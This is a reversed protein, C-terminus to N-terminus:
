KEGKDYYDETWSYRTEKEVPKPNLLARLADIAEVVNSTGNDWADILRLGAIRLEEAEGVYTWRRM